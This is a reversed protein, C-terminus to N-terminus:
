ATRKRQWEIILATSGGHAANITTLANVLYRLKWKPTSKDGTIRIQNHEADDWIRIPAEGNTERCINDSLVTMLERATYLFKGADEGTDGHFDLIVGDKHSTDYVIAKGKM